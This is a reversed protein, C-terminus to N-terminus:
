KTAWISSADNVERAARIMVSDPQTIEFVRCILRVDHRINRLDCSSQAHLSDYQQSIVKKMYPRIVQSESWQMTAWAGSLIGIATIGFTAAIGKFFRKGDNWLNQQRPTMTACEMM